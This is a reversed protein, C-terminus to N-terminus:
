KVIWCQNNGGQLDWQYIDAGNNASAGNINLAKGNVTKIYYAKGAWPGSTVPTLDFFSSKHQAPDAIIVAGNKSTDNM